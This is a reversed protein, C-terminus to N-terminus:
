AHVPKRWSIIGAISLAFFVVYLLTYYTAGRSLYLGFGTANIAVWFYWNEYIKRTALFEAVLAGVSTWADLFPFAADTFKHMLGGIVAVGVAIVGLSMAWGKVGLNTVPVSKDELSISGGAWYWWGYFTTAIYIINLWLDSYLKWEYCLYITPFIYLLGVPWCWISQRMRLVVFLIGSLTAFIEVWQNFDYVM